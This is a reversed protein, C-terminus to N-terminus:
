PVQSLINRVTPVTYHERANVTINRWWPPARAKDARYISKHPLKPLVYVSSKARHPGAM